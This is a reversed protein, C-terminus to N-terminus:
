IERQDVPFEAKINTMNIGFWRNNYDINSVDFKEIRQWIKPLLIENLMPIAKTKVAMQLGATCNAVTLSVVILLAKFM